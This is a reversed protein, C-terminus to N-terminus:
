PNLPCLLSKIEEGLNLIILTLFLCYVNKVATIAHTLTKLKGTAALYKKV